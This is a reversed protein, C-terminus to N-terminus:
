GRLRNYAELWLETPFRFAVEVLNAKPQLPPADSSLASCDRKFDELDRCLSALHTSVLGTDMERRLVQLAQMSDICMAAITPLLQSRFQEHLYYNPPMHKCLFVLTPLGVSGLGSAAEQGSSQKLGQVQSETALKTQMAVNRVCCFGILALLQHLAAAAHNANFSLPDPANPSLLSVPLHSKTQEAEWYPGLLSCLLFHM